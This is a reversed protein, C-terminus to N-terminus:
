RAGRIIARRSGFPARKRITIIATTNLQKTQSTLGVRVDHLGAEDLLHRALEGGTGPFDPREVAHRTMVQRVWLQPLFVLALFLLGLLAYPM